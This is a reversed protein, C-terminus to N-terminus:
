GTCFTHRYEGFHARWLKAPYTYFLFIVWKQVNYSHKPHGVVLMNPTLNFLTHWLM